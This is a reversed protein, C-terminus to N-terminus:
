FHGLAKGHTGFAVMNHVIDTRTDPPLLICHSFARAATATLTQAFTEDSHSM